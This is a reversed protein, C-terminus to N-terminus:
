LNLPHLAKYPDFDPERGGGVDDEAEFLFLSPIGFVFIALERMFLLPM